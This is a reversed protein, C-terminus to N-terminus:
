SLLAVPASQQIEFSHETQQRYSLTFTLHSPPPATLNTHKSRYFQNKYRLNIVLRHCVRSHKGYILACSFAKPRTFLFSFSIVLGLWVVTSPESDANDRDQCECWCWSHFAQMYLKACLILCILGWMQWVNLPTWSPKRSSEEVKM